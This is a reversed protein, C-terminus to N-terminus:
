PVPQYGMPLDQNIINLVRLSTTGETAPSPQSGGPNNNPQISEVHGDFFLAEATGLQTATQGHRYRLGTEWGVGDGQSDGPFLGNPPIMFNLYNFDGNLIPTWQANLATSQNWFSFTENSFYGATDGSQTSDGVALSETPTQVDSMKFPTALPQNFGNPKGYYLFFNPNASYTSSFNGVVETGKVQWQNFPQSPITSAPCIYTKLFLLSWAQVAASPGTGSWAVDNPDVFDQMPHGSTYSFLMTAWGVPSPLWYSPNAGDPNGPYDVPDDYVGFPIDNQFSTSYENLEQGISRLNSGCAVSEAASRAAALAPLLLSILLAIISIVVLLEVLTFGGAIGAPRPKNHVRLVM